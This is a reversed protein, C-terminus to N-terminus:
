GLQRVREVFAALKDTALEGADGKEQATVSLVLGQAGASRAGECLPMAWRANGTARFPDVFVPLHSRERLLVLASLDLTTTTAREFTRIGRECLILRHNGRELVREAALLWEEVSAMMARELIVPRDVRGVERLLADNQMQAASVVLVDVRSVARDVDAPHVVETAVPIGALKGAEELVILPEVGHAAGQEKARADFCPAWLLNAGAARVARAARLLSDRTDYSEIRAAIVVDAGGVLVNGVEFTTDEARHKRSTLHHPLLSLERADIALLSERNGNARVRKGEPKAAKPETVRSERTTRAPYSGLVRLFSTQARLETLAELVDADDVNGEFDVYFLYEWPTHPRPRSELKTLSLNRKALANLCGLLAGQEHKTAFILSTKASVRPDVKEARAAVVVMRTFNEKQNAIDRKIVTLGYRRAAEESAIAAQSLDQEEGVRRVSMATDAFAEVHCENLSSLFNSCQALAQPHSFVRRIRSLPVMELAVLCHEVKQVEEGVVSLDMQALLDYADNISGATTNEIPLVGYQAQGDRVAEMMARFTPYGRFTTNGGRPGFHRMAALHSYAGDVGQYSVVLEASGAREPDQTQALFEQQLRVSHDLVERFVRTVYFGDLGLGQGESSLRALMAEERVPDRVRGDGKQAKRRAVEMVLRDRERLSAVLQQDVQDLQARLDDLGELARKEPKPDQPGGGSSTTM